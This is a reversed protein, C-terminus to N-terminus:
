TVQMGIEFLRLKVTHKRDSRHCTTYSVRLPVQFVTVVVIFVALNETFPVTVTCLQKPQAVLYCALLEFCDAFPQVRIGSFEEARAV